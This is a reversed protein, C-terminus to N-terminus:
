YYKETQYYKQLNSVNQLKITYYILVPSSGKSQLNAKYEFECDSYHNQNYEQNFSNRIVSTILKRLDNDEIDIM